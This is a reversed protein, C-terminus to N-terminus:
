QYNEALHDQMAKKAQQTTLQQAESCENTPPLAAQVTMEQTYVDLKFTADCQALYFYDMTGYRGKNPSLVGVKPVFGIKSVSASFIQRDAALKNAILSDGQMWNPVTGGLYDIVTPAIDIVQVNSAIEVGAHDKNPFRIMLPVKKRPDHGIGHDSLIVLITRELLGHDRLKTYVRKIYSDFTLIADDYLDHPWKHPDPTKGRSFNIVEPNFRPGHTGLFHSNVFFPRDNQSFTQVLERLRKRDNFGYKTGREQGDVQSFPNPMEGMWLVDQTLGVAEGLFRNIFWNTTRYSFRIPLSTGIMM